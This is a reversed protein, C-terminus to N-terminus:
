IYKYQFDNKRRFRINTMHLGPLSPLFTLDSVKLKSLVTISKENNYIVEVQLIHKWNVHSIHIAPIYWINEIM